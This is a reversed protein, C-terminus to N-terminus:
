WAELLPGAVENVLDLADAGVLFSGWTLAELVQGRSMGWAKGLRIGQRIADRNGRQVGVQVQTYPEAQKPLRVLTTEYRERYAKLVDPRHRALFAVHGPVEGMWREYWAVIRRTDEASPVRTGFDAGSRFADPDPGWGAPWAAPTVPREPWRMASAVRGITAMGRPGVYRFALAFVEDIEDRTLSRAMLHTTYRLGHEFGTAGFSIVNGITAFTFASPPDAPDRFRLTDAWRRYRKFVSPDTDLWYEFAEQPEGFQELTTRRVEAIEEPPTEAVNDLNLGWGLGGLREPQKM